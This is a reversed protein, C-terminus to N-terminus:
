RVGKKIRNKEIMPGKSLKFLEKKDGIYCPMGQKCDRSDECCQPYLEFKEEEPIKKIKGHQIHVSLKATKFAECISLCDENYFLQGYFARSFTIAAEDSIM